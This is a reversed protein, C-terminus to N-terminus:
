EGRNKKAERHRRMREQSDKRIALLKEKRAEYEAKAEPFEDFFKDPAVPPLVRYITRGLIPDKERKILKVRELLALTKNLKNLSIGTDMALQIQTPWAIDGYNPNVYSDITLYVDKAYSDFGPIYSYLRLLQYYAKGYGNPCYPLGNNFENM